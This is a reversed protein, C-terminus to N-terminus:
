VEHQRYLRVMTMPYGANQWYVRAVLDRRNGGRVVKIGLAKKAALEPPGTVEVTLSDPHITKDTLDVIRYRTM